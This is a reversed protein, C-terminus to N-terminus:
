LNSSSTLFRLSRLSCLSKVEHSLGDFLIYGNLWPPGQTVEPKQTSKNISQRCVTLSHAGSTSVLSNATSATTSRGYSKARSSSGIAKNSGGGPGNGGFGKNEM